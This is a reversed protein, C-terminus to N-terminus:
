QISNWMLWKSFLCRLIKGLLSTTSKMQRAQAYLHATNTTRNTLLGTNKNARLKLTIIYKWKKASFESKPCWVM